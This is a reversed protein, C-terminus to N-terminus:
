QARQKIQEVFGRLQPNDPVLEMLKRAQPLAEKWMGRQAYLQVLSEVFEPNGPQM